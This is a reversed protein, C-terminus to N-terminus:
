TNDEPMHEQCFAELNGNNFRMGVPYSGCHCKIKKGNVIMESKTNGMKDIKITLKAKYMASCNLFLALLPIYYKRM